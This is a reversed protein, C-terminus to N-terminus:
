ASPGLSTRAADGISTRISIRIRDSRFLDRAYEVPLGASTYATREVLMLPTGPDVGLLGAEAPAAIVPELSEDATHPAQGYRRALVAYLSGSLRHSLLDPFTDAPFFSRELALPEGNGSRVRVVEHVAAGPELDLAKAVARTAPRTRASIRRAGPRVQARRMQETFGALGTLDCEIRPEAIFTGGTRGPRRDLVGRGALSALAQRLTMRSVGLAAALEEERPLKDGPTLEGSSIVRTLWQEIRVHAPLESGRSLDPTSALFGDTV